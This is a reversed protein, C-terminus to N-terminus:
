KIANMVDDPSDFQEKNAGRVKDLMGSDAGKQQLQAVLEDKSAPFSIGQLLDKYQGADSVM